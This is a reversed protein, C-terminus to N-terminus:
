VTEVPKLDYQVFHKDGDKVLSVTGLEQGNVGSGVVIGRLFGIQLKSAGARANNIHTEVAALANDAKLFDNEAGTLAQKVATYRDLAAKRQSVLSKYDPKELEVAIESNIKAAEAIIFSAVEPSLELLNIVPTEPAKPAELEATEVPTEATQPETKVAKLNTTRKASPNPNSKLKKM